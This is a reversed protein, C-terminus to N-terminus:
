TLKVCNSIAQERDLVAMSLMRSDLGEFNHCIEFCKPSTVMVKFNDLVDRMVAGNIRHAITIRPGLGRWVTM